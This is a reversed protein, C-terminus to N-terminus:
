NMSRFNTRYPSPFTPCVKMRLEGCGDESTKTLDLRFRTVVGEKRAKPLLQAAREETLNEKFFPSHRRLTSSHLQYVRGTTIFIIVDGDPFVPFGSKTSLAM